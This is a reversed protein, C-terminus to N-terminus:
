GPEHRKSSLLIIEGMGSASWIRGFSEIIVNDSISIGHIISPKEPVYAQFDVGAVIEEKLDFASSEKSDAIQLLQEIDHLM